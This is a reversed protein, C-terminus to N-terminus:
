NIQRETGNFIFFTDDLYRKYFIIKKHVLNKDTILFQNEFQNLYIDALLSSLPSGMALAEKQLYYKSDFVFHNQKLVITLLNILEIKEKDQIGTDILNKELIKLTEQIPINTYINVIDLAAMKFGQKM